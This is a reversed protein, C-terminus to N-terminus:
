LQDASLTSLDDSTKKAGASTLVGGRMEFCRDAARTGDREHTVLLLTRGRERVASTLLGMVRKASEDDLNGTPEDALVLAPDNALARAIAVRQQEGGSLQAPSHDSRDALGVLDLLGRARSQNARGLAVMPLLVNELATLQPILNYAQFVMGVQEARYKSARGASLRALDSGAVVVQGQDPRDLAAILNLLTTKGSGSPGSLRVLEGHGIELSVDRLAGVVARERRYTKSVSRVLVLPQSM